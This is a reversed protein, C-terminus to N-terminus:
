SRPASVLGRAGSLVPERASLSWLSRKRAWRGWRARHLNASAGVGAEGRSYEVKSEVVELFQARRETDM